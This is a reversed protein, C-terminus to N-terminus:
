RRVWQGFGDPYENVWWIAVNGEFEEGGAFKRSALIDPELNRHRVLIAFGEDRITPSCWCWPGPEHAGSDVVAYTM